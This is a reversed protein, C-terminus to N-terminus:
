SIVRSGAAEQCFLGLLGAIQTLSSTGELMRMQYQTAVKMFRLRLGENMGDHSKLVRFVTSLIDQGSYGQQWLNELAVYAAQWRQQLCEDIVKKAITPHPMDCVKLVHEETVQNFGTACSQLCNIAHRLDGDSAFIVAKLGDDDWTVNQAKCVYLLRSLVQESSLRAYRLIACRSQIPEIIKTSQNCALAFRTSNSFMEMTRRMAQQAAETMADAEDLIVIKHRNPPLSVKQQAFM